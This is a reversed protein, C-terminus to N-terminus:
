KPQARVNQLRVPESSYNELEIVKKNKDFSIKTAVSYKGEGQGEKKLRLEVLSFPYDVTRPQQRVEEFGIYRDFALFVRRGGDPLPEQWAYRIDWGLRAQHPDPGRWGPIRMRGKPKMKQLERLL